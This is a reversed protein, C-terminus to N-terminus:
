PGINKAFAACARRKPAIGAHNEAAGHEEDDQDERDARRM